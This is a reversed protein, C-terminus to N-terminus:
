KSLKQITLSPPSCFTSVQEFVNMLRNYDEEEVIELNSDPDERCSSSKINGSSILKSNEVETKSTGSSYTLQDTCIDVADSLSPKAHSRTKM